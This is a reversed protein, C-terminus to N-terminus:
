PFFFLSKNQVVLEVFSVGHEMWQTLNPIKHCINCRYQHFSIAVKKKYMDRLESKLLPARYKSYVEFVPLVWVHNGSNIPQSRLMREFKSPINLSPYLEIDISFVFPTTSFQRALNRGVNIPYTGQSRFLFYQVM